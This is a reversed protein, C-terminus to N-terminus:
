GAGGFIWASIAHSDNRIEIAFRESVLSSLTVFM